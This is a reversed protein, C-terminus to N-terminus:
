WVVSWFKASRPTSTCIVSSSMSPEPEEWASCYRPTTWAHMATDRQVPMVTQPTRSVSEHRADPVGSSNSPLPM